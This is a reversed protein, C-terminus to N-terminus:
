KIELEEASLYYAKKATDYSFGKRALFAICKACLNRRDLAINKQIFQLGHRQAAQLTEEPDLYEEISSDISKQPIGKKRLQSKIRTGGYKKQKSAIFNELYRRNDIFRCAVLHNIAFQANQEPYGISLLKKELEFSTYDRRSLLYIAKKIAHENVIDANNILINEPSEFVSGQYLKLAYVLSQPIKVSFANSFQVISFGGPKREIGIVKEM